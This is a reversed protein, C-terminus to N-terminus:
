LTRHNAGDMPWYTISDPNLRLCDPESGRGKVVAIMAQRVQARHLSPHSILPAAHRYVTKLDDPVSEDVNLEVGPLLFM